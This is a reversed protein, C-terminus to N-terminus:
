NQPAYLKAKVKTTTNGIGVIVAQDILIPRKNSFSLTTTDHGADVVISRSAIQITCGVNGLNTIHQSIRWPGTWPWGNPNFPDYYSSVSLSCGGENVYNISSSTAFIIASLAGLVGLATTLVAFFFKFSPFSFSSSASPEKTSAKVVVRESKYLSVNFEGSEANVARFTFDISDTAPFQPIIWRFTSRNADNGDCNIPLLPTNSLVPREALAQVEGSPFEFQIEANQLHVSSTNKLTFQFERVADIVEPASSPGTLRALTFGAIDASVRRNMRVILPIIQVRASRRRFWENILAGVVGGGLLPVLVKLYDLAGNV